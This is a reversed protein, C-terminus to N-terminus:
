TTLYLSDNTVISEAGDYEKISFATGEDLWIIVCDKLGGAYLDEEEALEEAEKWKEALILENYRKDMPNVDNWSSWGAGYGYSVAVAVEGKDNYLKEIDSM